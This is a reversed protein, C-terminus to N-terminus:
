SQLREVEKRLRDVDEGRGGEEALRLMEKVRALRVARQFALSTALRRKREPDPEAEVTRLTIKRQPM